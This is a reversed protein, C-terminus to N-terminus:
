CSWVELNSTTSPVAPDKLGRLIPGTVEILGLKGQSDRVLVRGVAPGDPV